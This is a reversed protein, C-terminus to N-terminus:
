KFYLGAIELLRFWPLRLYWLRRSAIFRARVEPVYIVCAVVHMETGIRQENGNPNKNTQILSMTRKVSFLVFPTKNILIFSNSIEAPFRCNEM